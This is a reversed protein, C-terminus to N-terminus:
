FELCGVELGLELGLVGLELVGGTRSKLVGSMGIPIGIGVGLVGLELVGGARSKLVGSMGTPIGVGIGFCGIGFCRGARGSRSERTWGPDSANRMTRFFNVTRWSVASSPEPPFAM